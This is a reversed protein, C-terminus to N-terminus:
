KIARPCASYNRTKRAAGCRLRVTVLLVVAGATAGIFAGLLGATGIGLAGFPWGGFVAGLIGLFINGVLDFGYGKVIVGALWGELAGFVIWILIAELAM